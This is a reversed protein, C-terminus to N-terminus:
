GSGKGSSPLIFPPLHKFSEERLTPGLPKRRNEPPLSPDSHSLFTTLPSFVAIRDFLNLSRGLIV